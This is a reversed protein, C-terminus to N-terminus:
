VAGAHFTQIDVVGGQSGLGSALDPSTAGEEQSGLGSALDTAGGTVM